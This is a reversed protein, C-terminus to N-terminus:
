PQVEKDDALQSAARPSCLPCLRPHHKQRKLQRERQRGGPWTRVLRLEIGLEVAVQTLRAGQGRRHEALRRDLDTASGLYHGAHGAIKQSLHLLYVVTTRSTRAM